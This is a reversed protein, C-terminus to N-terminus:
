AAVEASPLDALAERASTALMYLTVGPLPSGEGGPFRSDFWEVFERLPKALQDTMAKSLAGACPGCFAGEETLLARDANGECCECLYVHGTVRAM